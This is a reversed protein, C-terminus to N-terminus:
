IEEQSAELKDELEEIERSAKGSRASLEQWKFNASEKDRRLNNM